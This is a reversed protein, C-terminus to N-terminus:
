SGTSAPTCGPPTLAGAGEASRLWLSAFLLILASLAPLSSMELRGSLSGGVLGPAPLWACLAAALLLSGAIRRTPVPLAADRWAAFLLANPLLLVCFYAKWAVPSFLASAAFVASWECLEAKSGNAAGRFLRLALLAVSLALAATAVVPLPNGSEPVSPDGPVAFPPFGHGLLRDFLAFASQNMKGVGWGKAVEARWAAIEGVLRSPGLVLAPSASLAAWTVVAAAAPKWKRRWLLYPVFVLPMVKLASSLGILVGGAAGRGRAGLELGGLVLAFLLLNVQLHDLNTSVFRDTLLLPVVLAASALSLEGEATEARLRLRKGTLRRALIALVALLSALAALVLRRGRLTM